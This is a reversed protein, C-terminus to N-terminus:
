GTSTSGAAAEGGVAGAIREYCRVRADPEAVLSQIMVEDVGAAVAQGILAALMGHDGAAVM